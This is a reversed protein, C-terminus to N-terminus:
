STGRKIAEVVIEAGFLVKGTKIIDLVVEDNKKINNILDEKTQLVEHIKKPKLSKVKNLVSNVKSVDKKKLIILVDIDKAEKGKTIVSGFLVCGLVIDKLPKLDEAQIQSYSNLENQVLVFESLKVGIEESFNIKYYIANGIKEPTIAKINELKKLIKYAGRSSLNLRRAIANISNKERFNRIM